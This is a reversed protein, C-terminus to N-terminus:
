VTRNLIHLFREAATNFDHFETVYSLMKERSFLTTEYRNIYDKMKTLDGNFCMGLEYDAFVNGPNVKLSLVPVGMSWAELFVNPFGEYDSTNILAKANVMFRLTDSHRNRGKVDANKLRQLQEFVPIASKDNPQGVIMVSNSKDINNILEFLKDAGKIMTLSGAYIFYNKESDSCAPLSRQDIINPFIVVKGRVDEVKVIQGRHQRIIYDARKLLYTHVLDNPLWYSLYKYLRFNKKYALKYKDRFSLLDIDSALALLFKGKVKKAGFYSILHLYSRMRVYYYDAKQKVFLKYLGPIRYWLMRIGPLGKNWNPLHVIKVGEKTVFSENSFPDIVVVEHGAMALSKALLAMQLEGGGITKGKIAAAIDGWFCIKM